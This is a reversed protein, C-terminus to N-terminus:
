FIGAYQLAHSVPLQARHSAANLGDSDTDVYINLDRKIIVTDTNFALDRFIYIVSLLQSPSLNIKSFKM